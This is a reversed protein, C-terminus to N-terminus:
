RALTNGSFMGGRFVQAARDLTFLVLDSDSLSEVPMDDELVVAEGPELVLDGVTATGDFVYLLRPAGPWARKPMDRAQGQTLRMDHVQARARVKLPSDQPGALLRWADISDRTGFDHFQVMPTLDAADPRLFIQLGTLPGEIVKEEHEFTHGANMLMMRTASVEESEGVTDKHLVRGTRLYTLIEDDRHPHMEVVTGETVRAHDLRGLAGIGSDGSRESLGPHLIEVGFGGSGHRRKMERTLKM